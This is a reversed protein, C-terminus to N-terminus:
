FGFLDPESIVCPRSFTMALVKFWYLLVVSCLLLSCASNMSSYVNESIYIEKYQAFYLLRAPCCVVAFM